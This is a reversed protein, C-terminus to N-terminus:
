QNKLYGANTEALATNNPSDEKRRLLTMYYLSLASFSSRQFMPEPDALGMHTLREQKQAGM